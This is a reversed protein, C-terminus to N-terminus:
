WRRSLWVKCVLWRIDFIVSAISDGQGEWGGSVSVVYWIWVAYM